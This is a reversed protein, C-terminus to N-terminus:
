IEEVYKKLVCKKVICFQKQELTHDNYFTSAENGPHQELKQPHVEPWM